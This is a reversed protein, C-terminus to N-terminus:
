DRFKHGRLIVQWKHGVWLILNLVESYFEGYYLKASALLPSKLHFVFHGSAGHVHKIKATPLYYIPLKAAKLRRCFEVDEYYLFFREDLSGVDTITARSVLFAAMVAVDVKQIRNDPLYKGFCKKCGLFDRRIANGITPFMSVSPQPKGDPNLLRPVVAGLPSTDKAFGLLKGLTGKQVVTDPNLILFYDGRANKFGKNVAISYGANTEMQIFHPKIKHGRAIPSSNDASNNDIVIVELSIKNKEKYISDLLHGIQKGSNYTVTIISLDIM